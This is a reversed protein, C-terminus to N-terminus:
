FPLDDEVPEVKAKKSTKATPEPEDAPDAPIEPDVYEEMRWVQLNVYFNGNYENGRINFYATAEQGETYQDLTDIMDGIAEMKVKQPYKDTTEIVIERKKFGKKGVEQTEGIHVIAGSLSYKDM